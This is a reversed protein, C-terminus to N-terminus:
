SIKPDCPLLIPCLNDLIPHLPSINRARCITKLNRLLRPFEQSASRSNAVWLSIQKLRDLELHIAISGFPCASLRSLVLSPFDNQVNPVTKDVKYNIKKYHYITLMRSRRCQINRTNRVFHFRDHWSLQGTKDIKKRPHDGVETRLLHGTNWLSPVVDLLVNSM